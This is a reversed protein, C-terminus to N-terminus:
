RDGGAPEATVADHEGHLMRRGALRLMLPNLTRKTFRRVGENLTSRRAAAAPERRDVPTCRYEEVLSWPGGGASSENCWLITDPDSVDWTVRIRVDPDGTSKFVLRDGDIRGRLV